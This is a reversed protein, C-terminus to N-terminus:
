VEKNLFLYPSLIIFIMKGSDYICNQQYIWLLEVFPDMSYDIEM